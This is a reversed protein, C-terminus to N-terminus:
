IEQLNLFHNMKEKKTKLYGANFDNPAIELPVRKKININNLRLQDIKDPNNTLLNIEKIELKKIIDSAESYNREDSLFGLKLNAQVTDLGDDQLRYAEMKKSFGIGRGEQRMYILAGKTENIIEMAKKLQKGCDCRLSGFLDGTMCESHLRLNVPKNKDIEKHVLAIHPTYDSITSSFEYVHFNGYDTPLYTFIQNEQFELYEILDIITLIPLNFERSFRKLKEGRLMKGDDGMIECIVGSHKHGSLKGMEVAAETHGARERLGGKAAILPFIHGPRLLDEPKTEDKIMKLITLVRDEASIGTTTGERADVSVTFATSFQSKNDIAMLPLELKEALTKEIPICILGRGYRAMFTIDEVTIKESSMMLDGENERLEDDTVIIMKGNKYLNIIETITKYKEKTM